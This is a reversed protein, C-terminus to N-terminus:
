SQAQGVPAHAGNFFQSLLLRLPQPMADMRVITSSMKDNTCLPASVSSNVNASSRTTTIRRSMAIGSNVKSIFEIADSSIDSVPRTQDSEVPLRGDFTIMNASYNHGYYNNTTITTKGKDMEMALSISLVFIM